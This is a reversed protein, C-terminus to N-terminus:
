RQSVENDNIETVTEIEDPLTPAAAAVPGTALTAPLPHDTAVKAYVNTGAPLAIDKGHVFLGVVVFSLGLALNVRDDGNGASFSRLKVTQDGVRLLRSVLILEGARGGFGGKAAHVVEGEGQAGAPVVIVDDVMVPQAVELAFRDGRKHTNSAVPALLRLHIETDAKLVYTESASTEAPPASAVDAPTEQASAIQTLSLSVAALWALRSHNKSHM